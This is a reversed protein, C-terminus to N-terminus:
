LAVLKSWVGVIRDKVTWLEGEYHNVFIAFAYRKGSHATAYGAYNRVRSITGSKARIRGEAPTGGGISRLTGSRGAVPLSASFTDFHEGRAAHYLIEAMQRASVLNARSLGCGDEMQFGTLDVGMEEWLTRTAREASDLTGKGKAEFGNMRHLCEARLNNSKMNTRVLINAVTESEQEHIVRRAPLKTGEIGLLRLTTPEDEIELGKEELHKTFARACFFAPDPLAGRITFTGSRAPVTGRLYFVKGYPAGFIYGNDGSGSSGVRMENVFTIGPLRPDTGVFPAIAGVSPTRFTCYFQNQHFTLGVAGAGYYNGVDNWQWSDPVRKTGFISADGVISGTVRKIGEETLAARWTEFTAAINSEALTPDGGGRVIVSGELTGGEDVEGTLHLETRFRLDPGLIELATATTIAKMTSAPVLVLDPRYGFAEGPEGDLPIACFGISARRLGAQEQMKELESIVEEQSASLYTPLLLFLPLLRSSASLLRRIM